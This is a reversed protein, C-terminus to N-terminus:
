FIAPIEYPISLLLALFLLHRMLSAVNIAQAKKIPPTPENKPILINRCLVLCVFNTTSIGKATTTFKAMIM